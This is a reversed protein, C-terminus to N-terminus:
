HFFLFFTPFVNCTMIQYLYACTCVYSNSVHCLNIIYHVSLKCVQSHVFEENDVPCRYPGGSHVLFIPLVIDCLDVCHEHLYRNSMLKDICSRCFRDGCSTVQVPDRLIGRCSSCMLAQLDAAKLQTQKSYVRCSKADFMLSTM